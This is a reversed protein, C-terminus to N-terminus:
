NDVSSTSKEFYHLYPNKLTEHDTRLRQKTFPLVSREETEMDGLTLTRYMYKATFTIDM